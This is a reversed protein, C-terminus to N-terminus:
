HEVLRFIDGSELAVYVRGGGDEGFSYIRPARIALARDTRRPARPKFRRVDGTCLDAYVYRGYLSPVSRDRVVYGGIVARGCDPDSTTRWRYDLAPMIAGPARVERRFRHSGEYAPWGFNAGRARRRLVLDIEEWGLNGADGVAITDAVHDFSFRWPNRFGYAFIESRARRRGVFPNTEPVRYGGGRKPRIRLIKGFISRLSQANLAERYIPQEENTEENYAIGGDGLGIYLLGDPGFQIQGAIHQGTDPGHPPFRIFLITRRSAPDAVDADDSRRYSEIRIDGNLDNFFVYFRGNKDYKPSFAMSLMGRLGSDSVRDSIDLFPRELLGGDRVVRIRGPREVVFLRDDGRPAAVYTPANPVTAVHELAVRADAPAAFALAIAALPLALRRM